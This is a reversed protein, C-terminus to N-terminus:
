NHIHKGNYITKLIQALRNKEIPIHFLKPKNGREKVFKIKVKDELPEYSFDYLKSVTSKYNNEAIMRRCNEATKKDLVYLGDVWSFIYSLGSALECNWIIDTVTKVCHFFYKSYPSREERYELVEGQRITFIRKHSALMGIAALREDKGLEMLRDFLKADILSSNLLCTPYAANIDINYATEYYMPKRIYKLSYYKVSEEDILEITPANLNTDLYAKIDRCVNFIRAQKLHKVFQYSMAPTDILCTYNSLCITYTIEQTDLQNLLFKIMESSWEIKTRGREM